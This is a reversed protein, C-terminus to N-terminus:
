TTSNLLTMTQRVQLACGETVVRGNNSIDVGTGCFRTQCFTANEHFGKLVVFIASNRRVQYKVTKDDDRNYYTMKVCTRDQMLCLPDCATGDITESSECQQEIQTLNPGNFRDEGTTWVLPEFCPLGAYEATAAIDDCSSTINVTEEDEPGLWTFEYCHKEVEVRSIEEGTEPDIARQLHVAYCQSCLYISNCTAHKGVEYVVNDAGVQLLLFCSFLLTSLLPHGLLVSLQAM